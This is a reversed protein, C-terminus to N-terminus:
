FKLLEWLEIGLAASLKKMYLLSPNAKGREVESLYSQNVGSECALSGQSLDLKVRRSAVERGFKKLYEKEEMRKHKKYLLCVLLGGAGFYLFNLVLM